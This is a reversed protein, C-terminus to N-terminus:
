YYLSSNLNFYFKRAQVQLISQIRIIPTTTASLIMEQLHIRRMQALRHSYIHQLNPTAGVIILGFYNCSKKKLIGAEAKNFFNIKTCYYLLFAVTNFSALNLWRVNFFHM